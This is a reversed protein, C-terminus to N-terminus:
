RPLDDPRTHRTIQPPAAPAAPPKIAPPPPLEAREKEALAEALLNAASGHDLDGYEPEIEVVSQFAQIAERWRQAHRHALGQEYLEVLHQAREEAQQRDLEAQAKARQRAAGDHTPDLELVKLFGAVAESWRGEELHGQAGAYLATIQEQREAKALSATAEPHGPALALARRYVQVAQSPQGQRLHEEGQVLLAALQDV